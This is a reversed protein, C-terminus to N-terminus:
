RTGTVVLMECPGTFGTPTEFQALEDTIEQWAAERAPDTLNSLMQHLAGFSEREFRVCEAASPLRVPSPVPTVTIDQFGATTFTQEAVGPAGLSFPGPQGPAPPPLQARRRIVGVPISFFGNRDPTSYVVASFRGGPRLARRIGALAAQQDPFYILGVRSIAADYGQEAVESLDEGDAELTTVNAVGAEAAVHEAYRLIGPSIDTALVHGTPGALRAAAITQGGAGAAVDLVRSGSTIGAARLMEDTAAGLWDEITPGWRHWAEAANEWQARTTQKFTAPDFTVTM